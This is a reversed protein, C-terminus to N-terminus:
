GPDPGASARILIWWLAVTMSAEAGITALAAGRWGYEPILALNVVVNVGIGFLVTRNRASQLGSGTLANAPFVQVAKILPLVALYRLVAVVESWEEGLARPVLPALVFLSCGVVAGYAAARSTMKKAVALAARRSEGGADFFDAGSARVLAAVPSLSVQILRYGVNYFGTDTPDPGLRILMPRDFSDLARASSAGLAFPVGARLSSRNPRSGWPTAGFSRYVVYLSAVATLTMGVTTFYSWTAITADGFAAFTLVAGLQSVGALARVVAGVEMRRHAQAAIVGFEAVARLVAQTLFILAFTRWRVEPLVWPHVAFTTILTVVSGVGLITTVSRSWSSAFDVGDSSERMLLSQVGVSAVPVGLTALATVVGLYGAQLPGLRDVLLFFAASGAVLTAFEGALAWLTNTRLGSPRVDPSASM